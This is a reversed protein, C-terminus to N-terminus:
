QAGKHFWVHCVYENKHGKVLAPPKSTMAVHVCAPLLSTSEQSWSDECVLNLSGRLQAFRHRSQELCNGQFEPEDFQHKSKSKMTEATHGVTPEAHPCKGCAKRWSPIRNRLGEMQQQAGRQSAEGEDPTTIGAPVHMSDRRPAMSTGSATAVTM